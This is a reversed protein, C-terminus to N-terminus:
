YSSPAARFEAVKEKGQQLTHRHYTSQIESPEKIRECLVQTHEIEIARIVRKEPIWIQLIICTKIHHWYRKLSMCEKKELAARLGPDPPVEILNYGSIISDLYMGSGGCVIPFKKRVKMDRYVNLFDRQYEFVNYKYGPDAVDILHYPIKKGDIFYDNYDKGSGLDMRRYVQRSDASIVEGNMKSALAVALTTKGSATPGVVALLDFRSSENNYM